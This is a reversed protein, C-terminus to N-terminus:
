GNEFGPLWPEVVKAQRPRARPRRLASRRGNPGDGVHLTRTVNHQSATHVEFPLEQEDRVDHAVAAALGPRNCERSLHLQVVHRLRGPVSRRLVERLLDAAQVNSLHGEDGLVRTIV